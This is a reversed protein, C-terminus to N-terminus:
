NLTKIDDQVREWSREFIRKGSGCKPHNVDYCIPIWWNQIKRIARRKKMEESVYLLYRKCRECRIERANAGKSILFHVVEFQNHEEAFLMYRTLIEPENLSFFFVDEKTLFSIEIFSVDGTKCAMYINNMNELPIQNDYFM